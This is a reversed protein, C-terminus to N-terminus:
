VKQSLIYEGIFKLDEKWKKVALEHRYSNQFLQINQEISSCIELYTICNSNLFYVLLRKREEDTLNGDIVNYGLQHLKSETCFNKFNKKLDSEMRKELICKGFEKEFLSLTKKGIFYKRCYNCYHVPLKIKRNEKVSIAIFHKPIVPHNNKYCSISSLNEFLYLVENTIDKKSNMSYKIEFEKLKVLNQIYLNVDL